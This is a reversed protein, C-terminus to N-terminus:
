PLTVHKLFVGAEIACFQSAAQGLATVALACGQLLPDPHCRLPAAILPAFAAFIMAIAKFLSRLWRLIRELLSREKKVAVQCKELGTVFSNLEQTMKAVNASLSRTAKNIEKALNATEPGDYQFNYQSRSADDLRQAM